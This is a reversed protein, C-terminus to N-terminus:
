YYDELYVKDSERKGYYGDFYVERYSTFIGVGNEVNSYVQTPEFFLADENEYFSALSLYYKYLDKSIARLGFHLMFYEGSLTDFGSLRDYTSIVYRLTYTQGDILDDCFVEFMNDCGYFLDDEGSALLADIQYEIDPFYTSQYVLFTDEVYAISDYGTEENYCYHWLQNATEIYCDDAIQYYNSEEEPDSFTIYAVVADILGEGYYDSSIQEVKLEVDQITINTPYSASASASGLTSHEMQLTYEATSDFANNELTYCSGYETQSLYDFTGMDVNDKYLHLVADDVTVYDSGYGILERSETIYVNILSDNYEWSGNIVVSSIQYDEDLPIIKECAFGIIVLLGILTFYFINKDKIFM